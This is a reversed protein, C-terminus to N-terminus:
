YSENFKSLENEHILRQEDVPETRSSGDWQVECQWRWAKGSKAKSSRTSKKERSIVIGRKTGKSAPTNPLSLGGGLTRKAVRDGVAFERNLGLYHQNTGQLKRKENKPM